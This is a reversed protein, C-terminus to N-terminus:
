TILLNKNTSYLQNPLDSSVCVCLCVCWLQLLHNSPLALLRAASRSPTRTYCSPSPPFPLLTNLRPLPRLVLKLLVRGHFNCSGKLLSAGLSSSGRSWSQKGCWGYGSAEWGPLTRNLECTPKMNQPAVWVWNHMNSYTHVHTDSRCFRKVHM